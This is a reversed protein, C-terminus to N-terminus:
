RQARAKAWRRLAARASTHDIGLLRGIESANPLVQYLEWCLEARALSPAAWRGGALVEALSTGPHRSLVDRAIAAYGRGELVEVMRAVRGAERANDQDIIM